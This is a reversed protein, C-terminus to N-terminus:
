WRSSRACGAPLKAFVPGEFDVVFDISDDAKMRYGHGRRTQTVWRHPPRSRTTWRGSSSYDVALPQKPPPLTDPVWYAVINDNTEDPTPIQVLEVRGAGWTGTPEVWM